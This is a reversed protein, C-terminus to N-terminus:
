RIRRRILVIVWCGLTLIGITAPEPIATVTFTGNGNDKARLMDNGLTSSTFFTGFSDEVIALTYFDRATSTGKTFTVSSDEDKIDFVVTQYSGEAQGMNRLHQANFHSNNDLTIRKFDGASAYAVHTGYFNASNINLTGGNLNIHSHSTSNYGLRVGSGATLNFIGNINYTQIGVNRGMYITNATSWTLTAGTGVTAAVNAGIAAVNLDTAYSSASLSAGADIVFLPTSSAQTPSSALTPINVTPLTTGNQIRITNATNYVSGNADVAPIVAGDWNASNNWDNDVGGVWTYLAAQAVVTALTLAMTIVVNTKM